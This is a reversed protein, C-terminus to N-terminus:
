VAAPRNIGIVAPSTYKPEAAEAPATHHRPRIFQGKCREAADALDAHVQRDIAEAIAVLAGPKGDIEADGEAVLLMQRPDVQDHRVDAKQLFLALVENAEHERMGMLIMKAGDDVEPRLQFARDIRRLEAGGQELGFALRLALRGLNWYGNYWRASADVDAREVDLEDRDRMRNRFRVCKSDMGLDARRQMGAVPLDIRGRDDPKRGVLP